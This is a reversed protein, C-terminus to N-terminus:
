GITLHYDCSRRLGYKIAAKTTQHYCEDIVLPIITKESRGQVQVPLLNSADTRAQFELTGNNNTNSDIVPINRPPLPPSLTHLIM